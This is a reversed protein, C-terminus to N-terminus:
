VVYKHKESGFSYGLTIQAKIVVFEAFNKCKSKM